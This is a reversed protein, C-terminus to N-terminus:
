WMSQTSNQNAWRFSPLITNTSMPLLPNVIRPGASGCIYIHCLNFRTNCNTQVIPTYVAQRITGTLLTLHIQEILSHQVFLLKKKMSNMHISKILRGSNYFSIQRMGRSNPDHTRPYETQIILEPINLKSWSLHISRLGKTFVTTRHSMNQNLHHM